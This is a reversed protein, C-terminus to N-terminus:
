RARRVVGALVSLGLLALLVFFPLQALAVSSGAIGGIGLAAALIAVVLFVLAWYLM